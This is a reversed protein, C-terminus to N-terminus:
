SHLLTINAIRDNATVTWVPAKSKLLNARGDGNRKIFLKILPPHKPPTWITHTPGFLPTPLAFGPTVVLPLAHHALKVAIPGHASGVWPCVSCAVADNGELVLDLAPSPAASRQYIAP